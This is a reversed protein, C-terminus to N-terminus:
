YMGSDTRIPFSRVLLHDDGFMEAAFQSLVQPYKDIMFDVASNPNVRSLCLVMLSDWGRVNEQDELKSILLFIGDKSM